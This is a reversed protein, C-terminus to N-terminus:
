FTDEPKGGTVAINVGTESDLAAQLEARRMDEAIPMPSLQIEGFTVLENPDVFNFNVPNGYQDYHYEGNSVQKMAVQTELRAVNGETWAEKINITEGAIAGMAAINNELDEVQTFLKEWRNQQLNWPTFDENFWQFCNDMITGSKKLANGIKGVMTATTEAINKASDFMQYVNYYTNMASTYIRNFSALRNRIEIANELGVIDTLASNITNGILEGFNMTNGEADTLHLGMAQLVIDVTSSFTEVLNRSLMMGNHVNMALNALGIVRDNLLWNKMRLMKESFELMKESFQTWLTNFANFAQQFVTLQAKTQLQLAGNAAIGVGNAAIGIGNNAIGAGNAVTQADIKRLLANNLLNDKVDQIANGLGTCCQAAAANGTNVATQVQNLTATATNLSNTLNTQNLLVTAVTAGTAMLLPSDDIAKLSEDYVIDPIAELTNQHEATTHQNVNTTTTEGVTTTHQNITNTQANISADIKTAVTDVNANINTTATNVKTNTNANIQGITSVLLSDTNNNISGVATQLLADVEPVVNNIGTEIANLKPTLATLTDQPITDINGNLNSVANNVTNTTHTNINDEIGSLSLNDLETSTHSNINNVADTINTPLGDTTLKIDDVTNQVGITRAKVDGLESYTANSTTQVGAIDGRTATIGNNAQDIKTELGSFDINGISDAISTVATTITNIGNNATTIGPEVVETIRVYIPSTGTEVAPPIGAIVRNAENTIHTTLNTDVGLLDVTAQPIGNILADLGTLIGNLWTTLQELNFAIDGIGVLLDAYNQGIIQIWAGLNEEIIFLEGMISAETDDINSNIGTQGLKIETELANSTATIHASVEDGKTDIATQTEDATDIIKQYNRNSNNNEQTAALNIAQEIADFRESNINLGWTQFLVTLASIINAAIAGVAVAVGEVAVLIAALIGGAAAWGLMADLSLKMVNINPILGLVNTNVEGVSTGLGALKVNNDNVKPEIIGLKTEIATLRTKLTSFEGSYDMQNSLNADLSALANVIADCNCAM